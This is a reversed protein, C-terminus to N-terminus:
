SLLKNYVETVLEAKKKWTMEQFTFIRAKAGIQILEERHSFAWIIKKTLAIITKELTAGLSVKIIIDDPFAGQGGVDFVIAPCGMACAELVAMSGSDRFAPYVFLDADKILRLLENRPMFNVIEVFKNLGFAEVWKDVQVKEKEDRIGILILKYIISEKRLGSLAELLVHLGKWDLARGAYVMTFVQFEDRAADLSFDNKDIAIASLTKIFCNSGVFPALRNEDEKASFLYAKKCNNYKGLWRFLWVDKGSRRYKEKRLTSPTLESDFIPNIYEAGGIPGIVFPVNVFYGASPTRYQNFTLHHIIDFGYCKTLKKVKFIASLNWLMYYLQTGLMKKIGKMWSPLDYYVYDINHPLREIPYSEIAKKNNRRTLVVVHHEEALAISMNWGVGPESGRYPECAYAIILVNM